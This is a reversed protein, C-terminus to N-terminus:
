GSSARAIGHPSSRAGGVQCPSISGGGMSTVSISDREAASSVSADDPFSAVAFAAGDLSMAPAMGAPTSGSYADAMSPTRSAGSVGGPAGSGGGGACGKATFRGTPPAADPKRLFANWGVCFAAATGRQAPVNVADEGPAHASTDKNLRAFHAFRATTAVAVATGFVSWFDKELDAPHGAGGRAGAAVFRECTQRAQPGVQGLQNFAFGRVEARLEYLPLYKKEKDEEAKQLEAGTAGYRRTFDIALPCRGIGATLALVDVKKASRVKLFYGSEEM